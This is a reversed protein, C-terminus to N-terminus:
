GKPRTQTIVRRRKIITLENGLQQRFDAIVAQAGAGVSAKVNMELGDLRNMIQGLMMGYNNRSETVMGTLTRIAEAMSTVAQSAAVQHERINEYQGIVSAKLLEFAYVQKSILEAQEETLENRDRTAELMEKLVQSADTLAKNLTDRETLRYGYVKDARTQMSRVYAVLGAVTMVLVFIVAGALGMDQLIKTIWEPLM